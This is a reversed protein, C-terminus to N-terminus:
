NSPLSLTPPIYNSAQMCLLKGLGEDGSIAPCPPMHRYDWAECSASIPLITTESWALCLLKHFIDSCNASGTIGMVSPIIFYTPRPLFCSRIEFVAMIFHAPTMAWTPFCRGLFCLTRLKFGPVAL